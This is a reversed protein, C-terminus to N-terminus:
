SASRGRRAEQDLSGQADSAVAEADEEAKWRKRQENRQSQRRQMGFMALMTVMLWLATTSTLFPVWTTWIRQRRWFATEADALTVGAARSFAADFSAGAAIASLIEGPLSDGGRDILDRVLAGALAYARAQSGRGGEFLRDLGVHTVPRSWTLEYVLRTRDELGWAREVTMALGEHFWRPVPRGGAARAVLVHAVEHRLVNELSDYPYTTARDPFIVIPGDAGFALGAVWAPVREAYLSRESALIVRIAPGPDRLGVVRTIGALRDAGLSELRVRAEDLEPPAEVVIRPAAAEAGAARTTASAQPSPPRPAAAGVLPSSGLAVFAVLAGLRRVDARGVMWM